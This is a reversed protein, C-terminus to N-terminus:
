ITSFDSTNEFTKWMNYKSIGIKKKLISQTDVNKFHYAQADNLMKNVIDIQNFANKM